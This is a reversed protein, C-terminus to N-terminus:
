GSGGTEVECADGGNRGWTGVRSRKADGGIMPCGVAAKRRAPDGGAGTGRVSIGCPLECFGPVTRPERGNREEDWGQVGYGFGACLKIGM